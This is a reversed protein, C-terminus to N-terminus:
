KNHDERKREERMQGVGVIQSRITLIEYYQNNSKRRNTAKTYEENTIQEKVRMICDKRLPKELFSNLEITM